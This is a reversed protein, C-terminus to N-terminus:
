KKLSRNTLVHRVEDCDLLEMKKRDLIKSLVLHIMLSEDESSNSNNLTDSHNIKDFDDPTNMGNESVSSNAITEEDVKLVPSPKTKRSSSKKRCKKREKENAILDNQAEFSNSIHMLSSHHENQNFLSPLENEM